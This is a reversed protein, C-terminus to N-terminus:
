PTRLENRRTSDSETLKVLSRNIADLQVLIRAYRDESVALATNVRAVSGDLADIKQRAVDQRDALTKAVDSTYYYSGALVMGGLLAVGTMTYMFRTLINMTRELKAVMESTSKRREVEVGHLACVAGNQGYSCKDCAYDQDPTM